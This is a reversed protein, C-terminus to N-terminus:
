CYVQVSLCRKEIEEFPKLNSYNLCFMGSYYQIGARDKAFSYPGEMGYFYGNAYRYEWRLEVPFVYKCSILHEKLVLYIFILSGDEDKHRNTPKFTKSGAGGISQTSM